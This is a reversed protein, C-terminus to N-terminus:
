RVLLTVFCHLKGHRFVDHLSTSTFRQENWVHSSQTTKNMSCGIPILTQCFISKGPISSLDDVKSVSCAPWGFCFLLNIFQQVPQSRILFSFRIIRCVKTVSSFTIIRRAVDALEIWNVGDCCIQGLKTKVTDEQRCWLRTLSSKGHSKRILIHLQYQTEEICAKHEGLSLNRSKIVAYICIMCSVTMLKQM